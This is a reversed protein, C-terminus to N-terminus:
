RLKRRQKRKNGVGFGALAAMKQGLTGIIELGELPRHRADFGQDAFQVRGVGLRGIGGQEGIEVSHDVRQAVLERFQFQGDAHGLASLHRGGAFQYHGVDALFSHFQEAGFQPCQLRAFPVIRRARNPLPLQTQVDRAQGDCQRHEDIERQHRQGQDTPACFAIQLPAPLAFEVPQDGFPCRLELHECRMQLLHAFVFLRFDRAIQVVMQAGNECGGLHVDGPHFLVQRRISVDKAGLKRAREVIEVLADQGFPADHLVQYRARKATETEHYRQPFQRLVHFRGGAPSEFEVQGLVVRGKRVVCGNRQKADCLFRDVIGGFVRRRLRQAHSQNAILGM